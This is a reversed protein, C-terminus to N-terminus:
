RQPAEQIGVVEELLTAARVADVKLVEALDLVSILRQRHAKLLLEPVISGLNQRLRQVGRLRRGRGRWVSKQWEQIKMQYLDPPAWGAESLGIAIVDRSVCLRKRIKDLWYDSWKRQPRLSLESLVEQLEEPLVLMRAAFRNAFREEREEPEIFDCVFGGYARLLHGYEHLLSFIRGAAAERDSRNVVIFSFNGIRFSAGRLPASLWSDQELSKCLDWQLCIIGQGEIQQRWWRYADEYTKWGKRVQDSFGLRRRQDRALQEPDDTQAAVPITVKWGMEDLIPVLWEAFTRLRQLSMKTEAPLPHEAVSMRGRFRMPVREAPVEDLFFSGVPCGYIASLTELDGM